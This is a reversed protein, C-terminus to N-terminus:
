QVQSLKEVSVVKVGDLMEDILAEEMLPYAARILARGTDISIVGVSIQNIIQVLSQVQAGNLAAQQVSTDSAAVPAPAVVPQASSRGEIANRLISMAPTAAPTAGSAMARAKFRIREIRDWLDAAAFAADTEILERYLDLASYHLLIEWAQVRGAAAESNITDTSMRALRDARQIVEMAETMFPDNTYRAAILDGEMEDIIAPPIGADRAVAIEAVRDAETRLDYQTPLRMTFGDWESGGIQKGIMRIGFAEITLLQDAIPKVFADKARNNLGAQTATKADGGAMPGDADIHLVQRAARMNREIEERSFRVTDTSPSIYTLANTANIGDSPGGDAMGSKPNIILENLPGLRRMKGTGKCSPCTRMTVVGNADVGKIKGEFCTSGSAEDYFDCADGVMVAQPYVCKVKSAQLYQADTLAVDLLEKAPLFPSEFFPAGDKVVLTGGLHICPAEGIGHEYVREISFQWDNKKGVQRIAWVAEDDVLMCLVGPATGRGFTVESSKTMRLLYWKDYEFGWVQPCATYIVDPQIDGDIRLVETGDEMTDLRTPVETPVFSLVGMPDVLKLRVLVRQVFSSLSGWERIGREVYDRIANTVANEAEWEISYNGRHIARGITNEFDLAVSLTVQRYNAKIYAFEEESQNPARQRFLHDPYVGSEVHPLIGMRQTFAANYGPWLEPLKGKKDPVLNAAYGDMAQGELNPKIMSWQRQWIATVQEETLAM